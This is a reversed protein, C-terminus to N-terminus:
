SRAGECFELEVRRGSGLNLVERAALLPPPTHVAPAIQGPLGALFRRHITAHPDALIGAPGLSVLHPVYDCLRALGRSKVEFGM